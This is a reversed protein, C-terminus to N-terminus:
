CVCGSALLEKPTLQFPHTPPNLAFPLPLCSFPPTVHHKRPLRRLSSADMLCRNNTLGQSLHKDFSGMKEEWYDLSTPM